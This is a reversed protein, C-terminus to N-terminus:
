TPCRFSEGLPQPNQSAHPHEAAAYIKLKKILRRGLPGKPLMGRVARRVPETPKRSRIQEATQIALGGPFLSHNYYLKNSWKRGTLRVKSANVVIVFDGADMHPTYTPRHKGILIQAIRTAARGLTQGAVDAVYWSREFTAPKAIVTRRDQTRMSGAM